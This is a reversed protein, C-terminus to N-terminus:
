LGKNRLLLLQRETRDAQKMVIHGIAEALLPPVANAVQTFRPVEKRRLHGGTTFKGCFVFWDPFSQLRANERLTLTRPEAYHLLDDPMSTITPAPQDPDLVRLAQKHLGFRVRDEKRLSTNLHGESHCIEIIRSFREAIDSRHRALRTGTPAETSGRRMLNQYSTLPGHYAIEWFGSSEQSPRCGNRSKSLDSIAAFSTVPVHLGKRRLFENRYSQLEHFPDWETRIDKRQAIVIFRKRGQPVGFNSADIINSWVQYNESLSKILEKSYNMREEPKDSISFDITMGKVNEILIYRPNLKKVAELYMALMKNRPDNADRRGASSFGQCPPGGVLFDVEPEISSLEESYDALLKSICMPERPLWEPWVYKHKQDSKTLFNAELSSFAFADREVGFIGTWGAEFLGLSLGGCGAFLDVFHMINQEPQYATKPSPLTDQTRLSSLNQFNTSASERTQKMCVIVWMLNCQKNHKQLGPRM